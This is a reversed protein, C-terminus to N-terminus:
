LREEKLKPTYETVMSRGEYTILNRVDFLNYATAKQIREHDDEWFTGRPPVPKDKRLYSYLGEGQQGLRLPVASDIGEIGWMRACYLDDILNESFGLLHINLQPWRLKCQQLSHVLFARTGYQDAIRRPASVWNVGLHVLDRIDRSIYDFVQDKMSSAQIVYLFDVGAIESYRELWKVANDYTTIPDDFKDPLVLVRKYRDGLIDCAAQMTKPGVPKGLEIISNDIIVLSGEPLIQGSEWEKHKEVIDHALVLHFDGLAGDGLEDRIRKLLHPPGIPAFKPM